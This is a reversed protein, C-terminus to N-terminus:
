RGASRRQFAVTCIERLREIRIPKLVHEDFGAGQSLARDEPRGWGTVAAVHVVSGKEQRILRCAEFGDLLPLELDLLILMPDFAGVVQVINLADKEVRTVAGDLALLAALSEAADVNDDVILVRIGPENTM